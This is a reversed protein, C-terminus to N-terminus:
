AGTFKLDISADVEGNGFVGGRANGAIYTKADNKINERGEVGFATTWQSPNHLTVTLQVTFSMPRNPDRAM